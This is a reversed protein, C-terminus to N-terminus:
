FSFGPDPEPNGRFAPDPNLSDLDLVTVSVVIFKTRCQQYTLFKSSLFPQVKVANETSGFLNWYKSAKKYLLYVLIKDIFQVKSFVSHKLHKKLYFLFAM